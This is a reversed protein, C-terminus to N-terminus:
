KKKLVNQKVAYNHIRAVNVETITIQDKLYASDENSNELNNTATVLNTSLLEEAEDYSYEVMLNAGLWLSVKGNLKLLANAYVGDTLKFQSKLQEVDESHKKKLHRVAELSSKIEPIKAKMRSIGTTVNRDM